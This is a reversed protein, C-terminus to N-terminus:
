IMLIFKKGPMAKIQGRFELNLLHSALQNVPVQSKWSLEDLLMEKGNDLLVKIIKREPISFDDMNLLMKSKRVKGTEWNLIYELDRISTYIHAKHKKILNNCGESYNQQTNGPVAFVDRNYNNAYEATILAGGKIAAEIVIIADSLGAIIRNREPFFHAEPVIDPQSETLIGGNSMMKFASKQHLAPYIHNHGGAIVGITPMQNKLSEYHAHFDIGYALGSIITAGHWKLDAVIKEVMMKGYTTANRTGVIGITRPSNLDHNGKYYLINPADYLQKLRDPYDKDSCHLVQIDHRQCKQLLEEAKSIVTHNIITNATIPGIGPVALLKRKNAFFVKEPAGCYSILQRAM